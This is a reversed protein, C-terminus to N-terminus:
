KSIDKRYQMGDFQIQDVALYAKKLAEKINKGTVSVGLVRGGNTVVGEKNKKTGSHFIVVDKFEEAKKLGYIADGKKYTGPYGKSAIMICCAAKKEWIIKLNKLSGDICAEIIDILDTKLIRMYSQTEPDGFRSNFELVKPGEKTLMIGPYLCGKFPRGEKQLAKLVPKVIKEEIKPLTKKTIGEVPVITGMGGTNPGKNDEFIQKHDKSIPFLAVTKGDCFAHVSIEKGELYEEIVIEQGAPGFINKVLIEDVTKEAEEFTKSIVVGKGLALGSAKIVIPMKQTQLYKKAKEADHFTAYAATPINNKRMIKKAYAKSWEIKAAIKTPGFAKIHAKTLDDVLGQALVDDPGVVVMEVRNKKAFSVIEQNNKIDLPVNIGLSETGANGPAIYLKQLRKSQTIKWALAHERGGSGIILINM